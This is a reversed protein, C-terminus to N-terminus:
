EPCGGCDQGPRRVSTLTPRVLWGRLRSPRPPAMNHPGGVPRRPMIHLLAARFARAPSAPRALGGVSAAASSLLLRRQIDVPPEALDAEALVGLEEAGVVDVGREQGPQGGLVELVHADRREAMALPQQLRDGGETGLGGSVNQGRRHRGEGGGGLPALERHHEDIQNARGRQRGLEVRFVHTLQDARVLVGNRPLDCSELTM